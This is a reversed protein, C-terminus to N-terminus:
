LYAGTEHARLHTYSVPRAGRAPSGPRGRPRNCCEPRNCCGPLNCWAPCNRCASRSCCGAARWATRRGWCGASAAGARVPPHDPRGSPCSPNRPFGAAM